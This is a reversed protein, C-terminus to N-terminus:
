RGQKGQSNSTVPPLADKATESIVKDIADLVTSLNELGSPFCVDYIPIQAVINLYHEIMERKRDAPQPIFCCAHDLLAAFARTSSLRRVHTRINEGERRL